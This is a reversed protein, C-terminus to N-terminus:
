KADIPKGGSKKTECYKKKLIEIIKFNLNKMLM